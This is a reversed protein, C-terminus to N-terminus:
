CPPKQSKGALCPSPSPCAEAGPAPRRQSQAMGEPWGPKPPKRWPASFVRLGDPPPTHTPLRQSLKEPKRVQFVDCATYRSRWDHSRSTEEWNGLGPGLHVERGTQQPFMRKGCPQRLPSLPPPWRGLVQERVDELPSAPTAVRARKQPRGLARPTSIRPWQGQPRGHGFSKISKLSKGSGLRGERAALQLAGSSGVM